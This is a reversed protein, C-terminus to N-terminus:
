ISSLLIMACWTIDVSLARVAGGSRLSRSPLM